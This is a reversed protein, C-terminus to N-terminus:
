VRRYGYKQMVRIKECRAFFIRKKECMNLFNRALFCQNKECVHDVFVAKERMVHMTCFISSNRESSFYAIFFFSAHIRAIRSSNQGMM